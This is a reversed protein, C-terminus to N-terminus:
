RVARVARYTWVGEELHGDDYLRDQRATYSGDGAVQFSMRNTFSGREDQGEGGFEVMRGDKRKGTLEWTIEEPQRLNWTVRWKGGEADHERVSTGAYTPGGQISIAVEEMVRGDDAIWCRAKGACPIGEGDAGKVKGEIRWTGLKFSYDGHPAPAPATAPLPHQDTAREFRADQDLEWTEGQDHSVEWRYDFGHPGINSFVSRGLTGTEDLAEKMRMVIIGGQAGGVLEAQMGDRGVWTQKWKGTKADLRYLSVSNDSVAEFAAGDFLRRVQLRVAVEDDERVLWAGAFFDFLHEPAPKAATAPPVPKAPVAPKAAKPVAPPQPPQPPVPPLPPAPAAMRKVLGQFRPDPRLSALDADERLQAADDFGEAVADELLKLATDPEGWLAHVCAHNYIAIPRFDPADQAKVHCDHAEELRGLAHLSYGLNFWAAGNAPQDALIKRFSAAAEEFHGNRMLAVADQLAPQDQQAPATAALLPLAALLGALSRFSRSM